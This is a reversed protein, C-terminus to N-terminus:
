GNYVLLSLARFLKCKRYGSRCNDDMHITRDEATEFQITLTTGKYIGECRISCSKHKRYFPCLVDTDVRYDKQM